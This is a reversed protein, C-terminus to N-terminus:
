DAERHDLNRGPAPHTSDEQDPRSKAHTDMAHVPTRPRKIKKAFQPAASGPSARHFALISPSVASGCRDGLESMSAVVAGTPRVLLEFGSHAPVGTVRFGMSRYFAMTRPYRLAVVREMPTETQVRPRQVHLAVSMGDSLGLATQILARGIGSRRRASAVCVSSIYACDGSLLGRVHSYDASGAYAGKGLFVIRVRLRVEGLTPPQVKTCLQPAFCLVASAPDNCAAHGGLNHNMELQASVPFECPRHTEIDYAFVLPASAESALTQTEM